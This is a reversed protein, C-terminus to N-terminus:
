QTVEGTVYILPSVGDDEIPGVTYSGPLNAVAFHAKECIGGAATRAVEFNFTGGPQYGADETKASADPFVPLVPIPAGTGELTITTGFDALM